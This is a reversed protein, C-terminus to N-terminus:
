GNQTNWGLSFQVPYTLAARWTNRKMENITGHMTTRTERFSRKNKRDCQNCILLCVCGAMWAPGPQAPRTAPDWMRICKKRTEFPYSIHLTHTHTHQKTHTSLSLYATTKQSEAWNNREWAIQRGWCKALTRIRTWTCTTHPIRARSNSGEKKENKKQKRKQLWRWM